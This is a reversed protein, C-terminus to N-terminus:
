VLKLDEYIASNIARARQQHPREGPLGNCTWAVVLGCAPDAFACSSQAGSHGFTHESCHRGYGYPVTEGGYRKSDLCFGLGWDIVHRFTDDFMGERQRRTMEVLTERRLDLGGRQKRSGALIELLAEYFRGLDSIPGRGSRGPRCLAADAETNWRHHPAPGGKDTHFMFGLLDGYRQFAEKSLWLTTNLMGTPRLVEEELYVDVPRGDMVRVLEGLIFWSSSTQYGARQGAPWNPEASTRCICELIENWETGLDCKDATRFGATHNLLQRVTVASKSPPGDAGFQPLYTTVADDLSLLRREWLQGVAVATLPKVASLWLTVTEKRMPVGLRAQGFAQDAIVEGRLSVYLQAGPHLGEAIGSELLAAARPLPFDLPAHM